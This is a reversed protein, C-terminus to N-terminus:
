KIDQLQMRDLRMIVLKYYACKEKILKTINKKDLINIKM